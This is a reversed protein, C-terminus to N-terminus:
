NMYKPHLNLSVVKNDLFGKKAGCLSEIDSANLNLADEIDAKSQVGHEILMKLSEIMVSPKPTPFIDDLPESIRIHRRNMQRILYVHQNKTIIELDKARYIMAGISVGWREKLYTFHKLSSGIVENSYSSRPLLFAGAFRNAQKEIKNLNESSVEVDSHLMIHGLEHALNYLSRPGSTVERSFLVYPRGGQWRCVADMNDCFVYEGILIIGNSELIKEIEFIPGKGLGWHDRLGDAIKEIKEFSAEETEQWDFEVSPM